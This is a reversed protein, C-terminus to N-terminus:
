SIKAARCAAIITGRQPASYVGSEGRADRCVARARAGCADLPQGGLSSAFTVAICGRAPKPSGSALAIVVLVAIAAVGIGMVVGVWRERATFARRQAIRAAHGPPLILV